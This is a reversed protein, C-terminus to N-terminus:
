CKGLGLDNEIFANRIFQSGSVTLLVALVVRKPYTQFMRDIEVTIKKVFDSTAKFLLFM